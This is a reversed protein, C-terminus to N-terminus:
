SRDGVGERILHYISAHVEQIRPIHDSPVVIVLDALGSRAIEGGDRGLLAVTLLGRRRAEALATVLNASSGSTSLALAVDGAAAQAILQRSFIVEPGVDNAVASIPASEMSLSVAALPDLGPPPAVCDLVFDNADTASGGNGFAIVKGGRELRDRMAAVADTVIDGSTRAVALRLAEVERAKAEISRAVESLVAAGAENGGGLFPYLFSSAGADHGLDHHEFFVHVTEWLTHYLIEVIEQDVFPDGSPARVAYAGQGAGVGHANPLAFTMAGRASALALASGIEEDGGPPAFGFVMDEPRTIAALWPAFAASLDLAPLARKGVIVPHVFEVAIHQADTAQPGRGFALLRGGLRFRESMLRCAEALREAEREFFERTSRNREALRATLDAASARAM